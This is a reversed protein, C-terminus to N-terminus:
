RQRSSSLFYACRLRYEHPLKMPQGTTKLGEDDFMMIDSTLLRGASHRLAGRGGAVRKQQLARIATVSIAPTRMRAVWSGFELMLRDSTGRAGGAGAETLLQGRGACLQARTLTDRLVEVTQLYTHLRIGRRSWTWSSREAARSSYGSSRVCRVASM